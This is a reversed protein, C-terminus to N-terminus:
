ESFSLYDDLPALMDNAEGMEDSLAQAETVMDTTLGRTTSISNRAPNDPSSDVTASLLLLAIGAVKNEKVGDGRIYLMGLNSIALPDGQVSAKRYWDNAKKFDVSTGIGNEYCVGLNFQAASNGQTAAAKYWYVAEKEDKATGLGQEYMLALNYQAFVQGGKAAASFEKFALPMDSIEAAQLGSEFHAEAEAAKEKAQAAAEVKDPEPTEKKASPTAEQACSTIVHLCASFLLIRFALPAIKM